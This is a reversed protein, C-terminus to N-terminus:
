VIKNWWGKKPKTPAENIVEFDKPPTDEVPNDNGASSSEDAKKSSSSKPKAPKKATNKTDPAAEKDSSGKEPEKDKSKATTKSKTTKPKARSSTKKDVKKDSAPAKEDSTKEDQKTKKPASKKPKDDSKKQAEDSTKVEKTQESSEPAKNDSEEKRPSHDKQNEKHRNDGRNNRSRRNRSRKRNGSKEDDGDKSHRNQPKKSSGDQEEDSDKAKIFEITYGDPGPNEDIKIIVHMNFREEIETLMRRKQNLIYLAADNSIQLVTRGSRNKIGEEELARLAVIATADSARVYGFGLCTDCKKYQQETISPNLRQRSLELLGFTSIRGMQIRARDTSLSQKLKQEVKRNNRRDEMDIFDIVVLGGLDRLKLQRAVEEAAEMNTKLATEEIHREKTARGSNVDVSVLAETPNIVLYGGSPLTVEPVGIQSIQNEVQYRHFLGIKDDKYQQVKKSHSPILMKMFDKAMKYGDAGSVHIEDIDRTYIDRISKRILNGEEHIVAPASSSLTQERVKNWLRILYDLDRKIEAKTREVGATRMIVSMGQPVELDSLVDRMRRRDKYNAIKRSVGGGRPSNPMLVCYRGPLSLYSTVAAGKNGREEKSVQILMIQGRKIVEQIKYKKKLSPRIPQDGEIGDGGLVEVSNSRASSYKKRGRGGRGRRNGRRHRNGKHEKKEEDPKDSSDSKESKEDKNEDSKDDTDSKAAKGDDSKKNDEAKEEKDSDSKKASKASKAKSGKKAPKKGKDEAETDTESDAVAEDDESDLTEDDADEDADEAEEKAAQRAMEEEQEAILAERDAIPIRFYDPHIESFPLFGHRNGGFNVFAAQLSPEVRTVKALFINGKLQKRVSSEYDFDILKQGDVVAVRTEETHTADVLMKKTM